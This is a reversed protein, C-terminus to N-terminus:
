NSHNTESRLEYKDARRELTKRDIGLIRAAKSLNGNSEKLAAEVIMKETSELLDSNGQNNKIISQIMGSINTTSNPQHSINLKRLDLATVLKSDVFLCIREVTNRLERVNGRWRMQEF